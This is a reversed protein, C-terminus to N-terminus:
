HTDVQMFRSRIVYLIHSDHGKSGGFGGDSNQCSLVWEVLETKDLKDEANLMMLTSYGWYIGSMRLHETM